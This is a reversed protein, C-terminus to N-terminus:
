SYEGGAEQFCRESIESKKFKKRKPSKTLSYLSSFQGSNVENSNFVFCVLNVLSVYSQKLDALRDTRKVKPIDTQM